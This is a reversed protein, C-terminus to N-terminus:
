FAVDCELFVPNRELFVADGGLFVADRELVGGTGGRSGGELLAGASKTAVHRAADRGWFM